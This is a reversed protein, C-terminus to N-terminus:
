RVCNSMTKRKWNLPFRYICSNWCLASPFSIFYAVDPMVRDAHDQCINPSKRSKESFSILVEHSGQCHCGNQPHYKWTYRRSLLDKWIESRLKNRPNWIVMLENPGPLHPLLKELTNKLSLLTPFCVDLFLDRKYAWFKVWGPWIEVRWVEGWCAMVQALTSGTRLRLWHSCLGFIILWRQNLYHSPATLCCAM